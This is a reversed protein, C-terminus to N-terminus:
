RLCKYIFISMQPVKDRKGKKVVRLEKVEKPYM